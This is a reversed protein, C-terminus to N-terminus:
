SDPGGGLARVLDVAAQAQQAHVAVLAREANLAETQATTVEIYDAAGSRYRFLALELTAEAARAAETQHDTQTALGHTRALADEAERLATLVTSRYGAAAEDFQAHAAALAARRRGGDFLPALAAAPGLAWFSNPAALLAGATAEFGASASLTIQPFLAARAVGIRANAAFM